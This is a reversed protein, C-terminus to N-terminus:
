NFNFIVIYLIVIGTLLGLHLSKADILHFVVTEM